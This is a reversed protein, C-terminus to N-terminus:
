FKLHSNQSPLQVLKFKSTKIQSYSFLSILFKVQFGASVLFILTMTLVFLVWFISLKYFSHLSYFNNRKHVTQNSPFGTFFTSISNFQPRTPNRLNRKVLSNICNQSGFCCASYVDRIKLINKEKRLLWLTFNTNSFDRFEFGM